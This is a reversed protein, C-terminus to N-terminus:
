SKRGDLGFKIRFIDELDDLYTAAEPTNEAPAWPAFEKDNQADFPGAKAEFIVTDPHLAFFTHWVDERCDLVISGVDKNLFVSNNLDPVGDDKFPVFALAGQLLVLTEAKSPNHHRHPRVYSGPQIANLMRQLTDADGRHLVLIDRHRPNSRAHGATQRILETGVGLVIDHRAISAFKSIREIITQM